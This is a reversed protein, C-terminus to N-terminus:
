MLKTVHFRKVHNIHWKTRRGRHLRSFECLDPRATVTQRVGKLQEDASQSSTLLTELMAFRRLIEDTKEQNDALYKELAEEANHLVRRMQKCFINCLDDTVIALRQRILALAVSYRKATAMIWWAQRM